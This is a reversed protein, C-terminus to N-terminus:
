EGEKTSDLAALAARLAEQDADHRLDFETLLARVRANEEALVTNHALVEKLQRAQSKVQAELAGMLVVSM